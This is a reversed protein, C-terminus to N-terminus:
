TKGAVKLGYLSRIIKSLAAAHEMSGDWVEELAEMLVQSKRPDVGQNVNLKAYNCIAVVSGDLRCKEGRLVRSVTSQDVGSAKAIEEQTLSNESKFQQIQSLLAASVFQM